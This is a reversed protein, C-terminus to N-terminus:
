AGSWAGLDMTKETGPLVECVLPVASGIHAPATGEPPPVNTKFLDSKMYEDLASQSVFTYFGYCEGKAEDYAFYKSRLGKLCPNAAGTFMAPFGMGQETAGPGKDPTEKGGPAHMVWKLADSNPCQSGEADYAMKLTVILMKAATLDARTGGSPWAVQEVSLESGSMVDKVEAEVSSFHPFSEHQKFMESAMYKELAAGNFFVYVGFVTDEAESYLFYKHRLGELATWPETGKGDGLYARMQDINTPLGEVGHDWKCKLKVFLLKADEMDKAGPAKAGPAKSEEKAAPVAAKEEVKVPESSQKEDAGGCGM